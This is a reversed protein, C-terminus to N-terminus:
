AATASCLGTSQRNISERSTFDTLAYFGEIVEAQFIKPAFIAKVLRVFPVKYVIRGFTQGADSLCPPDSHRVNPQHKEAGAEDTLTGELVDVIYKGITPLFEFGHGSGGIALSLNKQTPAPTIMFDNDLTNSDRNILIDAIQFSVACSYEAPCSSHVPLAVYWCLKTETWEREAIDPVFEKMWRRFTVAKRGPIGDGPNEAKYRPLSLHPHSPTYNTVFSSAICQMGVKGRAVERVELVGDRESIDIGMPLSASNAAGGPVATFELAIVALFATKM